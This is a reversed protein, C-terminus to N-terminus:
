ALGEIYDPMDGYAKNWNWDYDFNITVYPVSNPTFVLDVVGTDGDIKDIYYNDSIFSNPDGGVSEIYDFILQTMKAKSVPESMDFTMNGIASLTNSLSNTVDKVPDSPSGNSLLNSM